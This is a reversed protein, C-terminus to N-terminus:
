SVKNDYVRMWNPVVEQANQNRFYDYIGLSSIFNEFLEQNFKEKNLFRILSRLSREIHAINWDHWGKQLVQPSNLEKILQNFDAILRIKISEPIINIRYIDPFHLHNINTLSHKPYKDLLFRITDTINFVNLNQVTLNFSLYFKGQRQEQIQYFKEINDEIKSWKLPYRIYEHVKELGDISVSLHVNNLRNLADLVKSSAISGNTNIQLKINPNKDAIIELIEATKDLLLPEGGSLTISDIKEINCIVEDLHANVDLKIESLNDQWLGWVMSGFIVKDPDGILHKLVKKSEQTSKASDLEKLMNKNEKYVLTSENGNCMRCASNCVSGTRLEIFPPFNEIAYSNNRASEVFNIYKEKYQQNYEQRLSKGNNDEINYCEVCLPVSKNDLMLQRIKKMFNSNFVEDISQNGVFYNKGFEDNIPKKANCCVKFLGSSVNHLHIFPMICFSDNRQSM